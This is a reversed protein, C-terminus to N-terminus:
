SISLHFLPPAQSVSLLLPNPQPFPALSRPPKSPKQHLHDSINPPKLSNSSPPSSPPSNPPKSHTTRHHYNRHQIPSSTTAPNDTQHNPPRIPKAPKTQDNTKDRSLYGEKAKNTKSLLSIRTSNKGSCFSSSIPKDAISSLTFSPPFARNSEPTM